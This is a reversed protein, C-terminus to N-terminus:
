SGRRHRFFNRLLEASNEALLGHEVQVAHNHLKSTLVDFVSGAAGTKPDRAAYVVREIRAHIIAGACMCCPELTVYLTCGPLRHNQLAAGAQRLAVMEAHASADQSGINRNWGEGVVRDGHVIVAGVPVEGAEQARRALDLARQMWRHDPETFIAPHGM